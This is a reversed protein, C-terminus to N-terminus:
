NNNKNEGSTKNFTIIKKKKTVAIAIVQQASLKHTM